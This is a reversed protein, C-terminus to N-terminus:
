TPEESAAATNPQPHQPGPGNGLRWALTRAAAALADGMERERQRPLREIPSTVVLSGAVSGDAGRFWAAVAGGGPVREGRSVAYGRRRDEERLRRLSEGDHPTSPTVSALEANELWAMFAADEMGALIARGAAGAHLPAPEGLEAVYRIPQRSEVRDRYVVHGDEPVALYATENFRAAVAELYPQAASRIEDRSAIAGALAYLRPGILYRAATAAPETFGLDNLQRLLRSIASRDIGTERALSRIGVGDQSHALAELVAVVKGITSGRQAADDPTAVGRAM